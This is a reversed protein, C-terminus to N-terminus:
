SVEKVGTRSDRLIMHYTVRINKHKECQNSKINHSYGLLPEWAILPDTSHGKLVTGWTRTVGVM